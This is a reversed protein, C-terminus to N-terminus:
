FYYKHGGPIQSSMLIYPLIHLNLHARGAFVICPM